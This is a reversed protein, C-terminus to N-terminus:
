VKDILFEILLRIGAPKRYESLFAGERSQASSEKPLVMRRLNDSEVKDMKYHRRAAGDNCFPYLRSKL